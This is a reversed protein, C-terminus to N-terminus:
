ATKGLAELLPNLASGYKKWLSISSKYVPQRVQVISATNVLRKAQFFNMCDESWDLECWELLKQTQGRQDAILEEYTLDYVFGPLVQHWHAMLSEYERYYHGLEGLDYAFSLGGSSFYNKYVSLCTDVPDRRCHIIKANPLMLKILGVYLMNGPMKDTIFRADSSYLRLARLYDGGLGTFQEVDAGEVAECFDPNTPDRVFQASLSNMLSLEGAGTVDPHSSM